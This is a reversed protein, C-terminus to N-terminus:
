CLCAALTSRVGNAHLNFNIKELMVKHGVVTSVPFHPIDKYEFRTVDKLTDAFGGLGSGCIVAIKPAISVKASLYEFAKM